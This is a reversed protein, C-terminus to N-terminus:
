SHLDRALGYTESWPSHGLLSLGLRAYDRAREYSTALQAQRSALLNLEAVRVREGADDILDRGANLHQVIAFVRAALAGEPTSELIARGLRLHRATLSAAGADQGPLHLLVSERIRDHYPEVLR